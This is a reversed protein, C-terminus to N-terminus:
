AYREWHTRVISVAGECDRDMTWDYYHLNVGQRRLVDFCRSYEAYLDNYYDHVGKMQEEVRSSQEQVERPACCAIFLINPRDRLVNSVDHIDWPTPGVKRVTPAYIMESVLPHRDAIVNLGREAQEQIWRAQYELTEIDGPPGSRKVLITPYGTGKLLKSALTSKGSGDAGELIVLPM